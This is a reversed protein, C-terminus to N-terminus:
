SKDNEEKTEEVKEAENPTEPQETDSVDTDANEINNSVGKGEAKTKEVKETRNEAENAMEAHETIQSMLIQKEINDSVGKSDVYTYSPGNSDRNEQGKQSNKGNESNGNNGGQEGHGLIEDAAFKAGIGGATGTFTVLSKEWIGSSEGDNQKTGNGNKNKGPTNTNEGENNNNNGKQTNQNIEKGKSGLTIILIVIIVVVIIVIISFIIIRKWKIKGSKDLEKPIKDKKEDIKQTIIKLAQAVKTGFVVFKACINNKIWEKVKEETFFNNFSAKIESEQISIKKSSNDCFKNFMAEVIDESKPVLPLLDNKLNLDMTKYKDGFVIELIKDPNPVKLLLDEKKFNENIYKEIDNKELVPEFDDELEEEAAGAYNGGVTGVCFAVSLGSAIIKRPLASRRKYNKRYKM